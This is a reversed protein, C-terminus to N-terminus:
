FISDFPLQDIDPIEPLRGYGGCTKCDPQGGRCACM